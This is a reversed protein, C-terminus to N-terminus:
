LEASLSCGGYAYGVGTTATSTAQFRVHSPSLPTISNVNMSLSAGLTLSSSMPTVRMEPIQFNAYFIYEYPVYGMYVCYDSPLKNFYRKCLLLEEQPSRAEYASLSGGEELRMRKLSVSGSTLAGFKITIEIGRDSYSSPMTFSASFTSTGGSTVSLTGSSILTTSTFGDVGNAYKVEWDITSGSSRYVVGSLTMTRGALPATILSEIRQSINCSTNGSAGAISLGYLGDSSSSGSYSTRSVSLSSGTSTGIWRDALFTSSGGPIVITTGGQWINFDGNILKNKFGSKFSLQTQIPSSVGNLYSLEDGDVLGISTTAPLVVNGSFTPNSVDAKSSDQPHRHDERAYLYSTGVAAVGDAVPNNM